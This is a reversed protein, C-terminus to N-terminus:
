LLEQIIVNPLIVEATFDSDTFKYDVSGGIAAACEKVNMIGFGHNKKDPKSTILKSGTWM